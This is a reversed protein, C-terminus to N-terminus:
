HNILAFSTKADDNYIITVDINQSKALNRIYKQFQTIVSKTKEYPIRLSVMYKESELIYKEIKKIRYSFSWTRQNPKTKRISPKMLKLTMGGGDKPQDGDKSFRSINNWLGVVNDDVSNISGNKNISCWKHTKDWIIHHIGLKHLKSSYTTTHLTLKKDHTSEGISIHNGVFGEKGFARPHASWVMLNKFLQTYIFYWNRKERFIYSCEEDYVKVKAQTIHVADNNSLYVISTSCEKHDKFFKEVDTITLHRNLEYKGVLCELPYDECNM